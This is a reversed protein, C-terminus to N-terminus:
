DDTSPSRYWAGQQSIPSAPTVCWRNEFGTLDNGGDMNLLGEFGVQTSSPKHEIPEYYHLNYIGPIGDAEHFLAKVQEGNEM